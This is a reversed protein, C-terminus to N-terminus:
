CKFPLSNECMMRIHECKKLVSEKLRMKKSKLLVSLHNYLYNLFQIMTCLEWGKNKNKVDCNKKWVIWRFSSLILNAVDTIEDTSMFGFIWNFTECTFGIENLMNIVTLRTDRFFQCEIFLHFADADPISCCICRGESYGMKVLYKEFNVSFNFIRWNFDLAKRPIIKCVFLKKFLLEFDIDFDFKASWYNISKNQKAQGHNLISYIDKSDLDFLNKPNKLGPVHYCYDKLSIVNEKDCLDIDEEPISKVIKIFEFFFAAKNTLRNLILNRDINNNLLIDHVRKFGARSWHRYEFVKGRFTYRSNCWILDNRSNVLSLRGLEQFDLLCKKYFVPINCKELENTSDTVHLAFLEVDYKDDLCCFYKMPLITWAGEGELINILMKIRATKVLNAVNPVNIGGSLRPLYCIDNSVFKTGWKWVFGWVLKQVNKIFDDSVDIHSAAYQILPLVLSRSIHVKGFLTLHRNKWLLVRQEMKKYKEDWFADRGRGRGIPVGLVIEAKNSIDVIQKLSVHDPFHEKVMAISKSKNVKSGSAEGFKNFIELCIHVSEVDKLTHSSDDVYMSNKVMFDHDNRDKITIGRVRPNCNLCESLPQAQLIYLLASLPDGQRIGRSIDFYPSIYGNTVVASRMNKYIVRIFNIFYPGMGFKELVHFLWPWEVRDFAKEKDDMLIINEPSMGEFFDEVLRIGQGIKRGKVCGCQNKNIIHPLVQKLREAFVKTLIKIDTNSLSIPRWNKIDERINKKYLLIILALYQSYPLEKQEYSTTYVQLLDDKLIDFFLQYFQFIIGDPGPSSNKRVKKLASEIDCLDVKKNLIAFDEAGVPNDIFSGFFERQDPDSGETTYLNRYFETQVKMINDTGHVLKKDKDLIKTWNKKQAHYKELNHFFSTPKEGEEFWKARSRVIDGECEKDIINNISEQLFSVYENNRDEKCVEADLSSQLKQLFNNRECKLKQACWVTLQKIKKKGLDWWVHINYNSKEKQWTKWMETFCNKFLDSNIISANMKWNGPGLKIKELDLKLVAMSHDSFPCAQYRIDDVNSDLKKDILFYDLRSQKDGRSFSFCKTNPNRKRYIDLLFKNNIMSKLEERGKETETSCNLRDFVNNLTCNYDGGIVPKNIDNVEVWSNIKKFFLVREIPDNPAYINIFKFNEDALKINFYIYRGDLDIKTKSIEYENKPNFLVAVGKSNSSGTTWISSKSPGWDQSWKEATEQDFCHTEQIFLIDFKLKKFWCFYKQRRRLTSMGNVNLTIM